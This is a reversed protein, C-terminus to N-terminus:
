FKIGRLQEEPLISFDLYDSSNIKKWFTKSLLTKDLIMDKVENRKNVLALM